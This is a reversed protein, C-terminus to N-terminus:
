ITIRGGVGREYHGRGLYQELEEDMEDELIRRLAERAASRDDGEWVFADIEKLARNVHRGTAKWLLRSM